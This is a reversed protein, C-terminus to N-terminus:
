VITDRTSLAVIWYRDGRRHPKKSNTSVVFVGCALAAIFNSYDCYNWDIAITLILLGFFM